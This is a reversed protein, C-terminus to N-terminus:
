RADLTPPPIPILLLTFDTMIVTLLGISRCASLASALWGRTTQHAKEIPRYSCLGITRCVIIVTINTLM